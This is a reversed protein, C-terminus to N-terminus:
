LQRAHQHFSRHLDGGHDVGVDEDHDLRGALAIEASSLIEDFRIQIVAKTRGAVIDLQLDIRLDASQLLFRGVGIMMAAAVTGARIVMMGRVTRLGGVRRRGAVSTMMMRMVVLMM